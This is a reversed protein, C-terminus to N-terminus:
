RLGPGEEPNEETEPSIEHYEGDIVRGGRGGPRMRAEDLRTIVTVTGRESLIRWLVGRLWARLAPVFLLLGLADTVFGPTILLAGAVLLCVGDFVQAVPFEGEDLSARAHALAALGQSRLLAAGAVATAVIIALTPWLGILDGVEIFVAIEVLPVAILLLILTLAM